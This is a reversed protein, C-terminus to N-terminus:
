AHIELFIPTLFGIHSIMVLTQPKKSKNAYEFEFLVITLNETQSFTM